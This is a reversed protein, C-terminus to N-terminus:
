ATQQSAETPVNSLVVIRVRSRRGPVRVIKIAQAPERLTYTRGITMTRVHYDRTPHTSTNM